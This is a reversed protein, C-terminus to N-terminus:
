RAERYKVTAGGKGQPVKAKPIQAFELLFRAGDPLLETARHTIYFGISELTLCGGRSLEDTSTEPLRSASILLKHDANTFLSFRAKQQKFDAMDDLRMWVRVGRPLKHEANELYLIRATM